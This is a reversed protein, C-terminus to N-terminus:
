LKKFLADFAARADSPRGSSSGQSGGQSGQASLEQAAKPEFLACRNRKAKGAVRETVPRRCENPASSDFHACHTCSHLDTGCKECVSELGLQASSQRQGCVACRFVTGTPKGLGRGRPGTREPAPGAPRRERPDGGDDSM